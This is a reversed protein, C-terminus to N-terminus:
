PSRETTGENKKKIIKQRSQIKKEKARINRNLESRKGGKV